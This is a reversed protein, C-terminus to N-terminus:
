RGGGGESKPTKNKSRKQGWPKTNTEQTSHPLETDLLRPQVTPQVRTGGTVGAGMSPREPSSSRWGWPNGVQPEELSLGPTRVPQAKPRSLEDLFPDSSMTPTPPPCWGGIQGRSM